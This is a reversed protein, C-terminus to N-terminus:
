RFDCFPKAPNPLPGFARAMAAMSFLGIYVLSKKMAYLFICIKWGFIVGSMGVIACFILFLLLGM